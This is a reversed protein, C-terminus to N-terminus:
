EEKITTYVEKMLPTINRGDSRDEFYEFQLDVYAQDANRGGPSAAVSIKRDQVSLYGARFLDLVGQQILLLNTTNGPDDDTIDFCTITFYVTEQVTKCNVPSRDATVLEIMFSPRELPEPHLDMTITHDPYNEALLQQIGAM